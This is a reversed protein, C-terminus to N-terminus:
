IVSNKGIVIPYSAPGVLREGDGVRVGKDLIANELEVNAGISDEQMLISNKVSSGRGIRVGRFLISGEVSGEIICGDAVLTNRVKSSPAYYTPVEDRIKTYVPNARFLADRVSRNILDMNFRFYTDVTEVRRQYGRYRYGNVRLLDDRIFRQLIDRNLNHLGHAYAQDILRLLLKRKMLMVDMYICRSEPREPGVELDEVRGSEGNVRLYAHRKRQTPDMGEGGAELEAYMLTIEAGSREHEEIMGHFTTNFATHSNTLILYEQKSRNLYGLNSQLADLIGEYTGVNDKTLFPPLIFLGDNRTHLDWERGSGLHDVLSHYNRQMIVGVNRIGTNVLNSLIFDIMRYRGAVPLAAVARSMTLERLMLDNKSTYIIGMVDRM